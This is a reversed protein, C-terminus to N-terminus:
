AMESTLGPVLLIGSGIVSGTYLAVIQPLNLTAQLRPSKVSSPQSM